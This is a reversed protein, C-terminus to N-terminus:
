PKQLVMRWYQMRGARLHEYLESGIVGAFEQITPQLFRPVDRRINALRADSDLDLAHVVNETIQEEEVPNFGARKVLERVHSLNSGWVHDAFL